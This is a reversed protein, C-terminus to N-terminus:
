KGSAMCYIPDPGREKQLVAILYTTGRLSAVTFADAYFSSNARREWQLARVAFTTM